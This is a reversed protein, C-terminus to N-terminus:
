QKRYKSLIREVPLVLLLLGWLWSSIDKLQKPHTANNGNILYAQVEQIDMTRQDLAGMNIPLQDHLQLLDMLQEALHQDVVNEADLHHRLLYQDNSAGSEILEPALEDPQWLLKKGEFPIETEEKLWVLVDFSGIDVKQEDKVASLQIDQKLYKSLAEFAAGLYIMEASFDDEYVILVQQLKAKSLPLKVTKNDFKISISDEENDIILIDNDLAYMEEKYDLVSPDSKVSTLLLQVDSLVARVPSSSSEGAEILLWHIPVKLEPRMGKFGSLLGKTLVIISDTQLTEMQQALQWYNPPAQRNNQSESEELLPFGKELLRVQHDTITDLIAIVKQSALLSPEVLYTISREGKKFEISPIALIMAILGLILMRLVLLVWHNLNISRTQKPNLERLLQISGIKITKVKRKSWFHIAIPVLLGLLTWLFVPNLFVM